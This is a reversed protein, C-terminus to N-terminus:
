DTRYFNHGGITALPPEKIWSPSTSNVAIFHDAGPVILRRQARPLSWTQIAREAVSWAKRWADPDDLFFKDNTRATAFQGPARVVECVTSGWHGTERRRLAVEAVALQGTDSEGRAELYVMTTLCFQDSAHQPMASALWLLFALKMTKVERM